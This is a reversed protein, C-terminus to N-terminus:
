LEVNEICDSHVGWLMDPNRDWRVLYRGLGAYTVIGNDVITGIDGLEACSYSPNTVKVRDGYRINM